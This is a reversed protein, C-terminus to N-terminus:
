GLTIAKRLQSRSSTLCAVGSPLQDRGRRASREAKPACVVAAPLLVRNAACAARAAALRATRDAPPWRKPALNDDVVLSRADEPLVQLSKLFEILSRQECDGLEEFRRRQARAEGDHALIAQRLTTFKGHHFFPPENAAGWLGNTLFRCNGEVDPDSGTQDLPECNPDDPGSTIDHLQLDTYAPVRIVNGEPQLRPGPLDEDTLDVAWPEADGVQLNGSPNFPNPESYSWHSQRLKLTPKHCASCGISGFVDEGLLVANEVEPVNPILRGPPPLMAQWATVATVEAVTMENCFGDDDPDTDAGFRESTQIGHHHNFANNTFERLSVVAGVQHFPRVVLNPGHGHDALSPAPLGRVGSTEFTCGSEVTSRSLTGFSVGTTKLAVSQGCQLGDRLAQLDETMQRALMEIFGAGFMGITARYNGVTELTVLDGNQDVSGKLRIGDDNPDFTAFDLRQGLVFVGTVHDGGGGSSPLNHCGACSNADPASVRNFNRPFVLPDNPDALPQGTGTSQPRGGGEQATWHAEFLRRGHDLLQAVSLDFEDGAQLRDPMSLETGIRDDPASADFRCETAAITWPQLVVAFFAAGGPFAHRRM